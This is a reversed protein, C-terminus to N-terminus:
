ANRAIFNMMDTLPVSAITADSHGGVNGMNVLRCQPGAAAGFLLCSQPTCVTDDQAFYMVQPVNQFQGAYNAPNALPPLPPNNNSIWNGVGWATGIQNQAGLAARNRIDDLDNCPLIGIIASVKSPNALQYTLSLLHGMSIGILIVGGAKAGGGVPSSMGLAGPATQLFTIAQGLRTQGNPNGWNNSDNTGNTGFVGADFSILPYTSAITGLVNAENTKTNPFGAIASIALEGAGHVYVVGRITGDGRYGRPYWLVDSESAVYRGTGYNSCPM